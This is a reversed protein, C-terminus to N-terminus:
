KGEGKTFQAIWERAQELSTFSEPFWSNVTRAEWAQWMREADTFSAFQDPPIIHAARYGLRYDRYKQGRRTATRFLPEPEMDAHFARKITSKIDGERTVSAVVELTFETTRVNDGHTRAYSSQTEIIVMNGRQAKM